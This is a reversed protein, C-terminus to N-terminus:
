RDAMVHPGPFRAEGFGGSRGLGTAAGCLALLMAWTRRGTLPFPALFGDAM